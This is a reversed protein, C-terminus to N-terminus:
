LPNDPHMRDHMAELRALRVELDHVAAETALLLRRGATGGAQARVHDLRSEARLLRREAAGAAAQRRIAHQILNTLVLRIETQTLPDCDNELVDVLTDLEGHLLKNFRSM